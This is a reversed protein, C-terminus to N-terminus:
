PRLGLTTCLRAAALLQLAASCNLLLCEAPRFCNSHNRLAPDGPGTQALERKWFDLVRVVGSLDHHDQTLVVEVLLSIACTRCYLRYKVTKTSSESIYVKKFIFKEQLTLYKTIKKTSEITKPNNYNTSM